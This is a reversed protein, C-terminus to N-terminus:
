SELSNSGSAALTRCLQVLVIANPTRAAIASLRRAEGRTGVYVVGNDMGVDVVDDWAVREGEKAVGDPGVEFPGIRVTEGDRIRALQGPLVRATVEALVREGLDRVDPLEPGLTLEGDATGVAFRLRTPSRAADRVGSVTVPGLDDWTYAAREGRAELVFGGTFLYVARYRASVKALVRRVGSRGDFVRVPDGLKHDAARELVSPPFSM